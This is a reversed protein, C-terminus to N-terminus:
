EPFLMIFEDMYPYPDTKPGFIYRVAAENSGEAHKSVLLLRKDQKELQYVAYRIGDTGAATDQPKAGIEELFAQWANKDAGFEVMNELEAAYDNGIMDAVTNIEKEVPEPKSEVLSVTEVVAEPQAQTEQPPLEPEAMNLVAGISAAVVVASIGVGKIITAGKISAGLSGSANVGAIKEHLESIIQACAEPTATTNKDAEFIQTLVPVAGVPAVGTVFATGTQKELQEKLKRKSAALINDVKKRSVGIEEAIQEYSMGENYFYYLCLKQQLPFEKIVDMVMTVYAQDEAFHAPLLERREEHFVESLEGEELVTDLSEQTASKQKRMFNVYSYKVIQNAWTDFSEPKELTSISKYMALMADQAVDKGDHANSLYIAFHLFDRRKLEMLKEFEERGGRMAARILKTKKDVM